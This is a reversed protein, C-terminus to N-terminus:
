KMPKKSCLSSLCWLLLALWRLPTKPHSNCVPSFLFSWFTFIQLVNSNFCCVWLLGLFFRISPQVFTTPSRWNSVLSPVSKPVLTYQSKEKAQMHNLFSRNMQPDLCTKHHDM